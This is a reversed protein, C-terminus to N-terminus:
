SINFDINDETLNDLQEIDSIEQNLQELEKDLEETENITNNDLQKVQKTQEEKVVKEEQQGTQNICGFLLLSLLFLGIILTYNM